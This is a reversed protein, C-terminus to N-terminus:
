SRTARLFIADCTKKYRLRIRDENRALLHAIQPFSWPPNEARLFFILRTKKPEPALWRLANDWDSIDRRTPRWEGPAAELNEKREAEQAVQDAFQDWYSTNFNATTPWFQAIGLYDERVVGPTNMTRIARLVRAEAEALTTPPTSPAGLKLLPYSFGRRLEKHRCHRTPSACQTRWSVDPQRTIPEGLRDPWNKENLPRWACPQAHRPLDSFKKASMKIRYRRRGTATIRVQGIREGQGPLLLWVNTKERTLFSLCYHSLQHAM